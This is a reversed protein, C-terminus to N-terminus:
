HLKSKVAWATLWSILPRLKTPMDGDSASVRHEQGKDEFVLEYYMEDPRLDESAKRSTLSAIDAAQVLELIKAAESGPLTETDVVCSRRGAPGAVGGGSVFKVQM